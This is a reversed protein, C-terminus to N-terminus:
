ENKNDLNYYERWAVDVLKDPNGGFEGFRTTRQVENVMDQIRILGLKNKEPYYDLLWKKADVYCKADLEYPVRRYHILRKEEDVIMYSADPNGDRSYGVSGPNILLAECNCSDIEFTSNPTLKLSEPSQKKKDYYFFTPFHTHGFFYLKKKRNLLKTLLNCKVKETGHFEIMLDPLLVEIHWPMRYNFYNVLPGNHSLVVTFSRTQFTKYHTSKEALKQMYNSAFQDQEILYKNYAIMLLVKPNVGEGQDIDGWYIEEHNGRIVNTAKVKQTLLKILEVPQCGYGIIDGLCFISDIRTVAQLSAMDKFVAELAPYNAHLDSIVAFSM